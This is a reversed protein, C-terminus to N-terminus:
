NIFLYFSYYSRAPWPRRAPFDRVHVTLLVSNAARARVAKAAVASCYSVGGRGRASGRSDLRCDAAALGTVPMFPALGAGGRRTLVHLASGPRKRRSARRAIAPARHTRTAAAAHRTYSNNLAGHPACLAACAMAVTHRSSRAETSIGSCMCSSLGLVDAVSSPTPPTAAAAAVVAHSSDHAHQGEAVPSRSSIARHGLANAHKVRVRSTAYPGDPTAKGGRPTPM